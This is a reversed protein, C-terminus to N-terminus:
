ADYDYTLMEYVNFALTCIEYNDQGLKLKDLDKITCWKFDKIERVSHDIKSNGIVEAIYFLCYHNHDGVNHVNTYFPTVTLKEINGKNEILPGYSLLEVDLGVEEKIERVIADDPVENTDIHGGVPLWLDLKRHHIQLLKGEHFIYAAVTLDTKM